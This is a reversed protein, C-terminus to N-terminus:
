KDDVLRDADAFLRRALRELEYPGARGYTVCKEYDAVTLCVKTSSADAMRLASTVVTGDDKLFVSYRVGLNTPLDFFRIRYLENLLALLDKPAYRFPLTQGDRELTASGTGSLSLRRIPFASSGPQRTLHVGVDELRYTLPPGSSGLSPQAAMASTGVLLGILLGVHLWVRAAPPIEGRGCSFVPDRKRFGTASAQRAM